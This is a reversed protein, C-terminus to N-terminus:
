IDSFASDSVLDCKSVKKTFLNFSDTKVVNETSNAVSNTGIADIYGTM